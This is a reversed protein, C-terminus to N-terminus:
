AKRRRTASSSAISSRLLEPVREVQDQRARRERELLARKREVGWRYGGSGGTRPVARHCPVILALRNSACARAVARAATPRGLSAAIEGYTKTQGYPIAALAKWVRCTFATAVVDTEIGAIPDGGELHSVISAVMPRLKDDDRVVEAASFESRLSRELVADSDGLSVACAGRETCAALMRGLKTNVLTFWVRSGTGARQYESPTMGLLKAGHEYLRSSSGYGAGYLASTVSDGGRLTEKLRQIRRLDSYAKPTMGLTAKFARSLQSPSVGFRAAVSVLTPVSDEQSDIFRCVRQALESSANILSADPRCRLCARYGAQRAEDSTSYFAVRDRRPHRAACSPRCFIGTSSVAFVFSGDARRDRALVKQWPDPISLTNLNNMPRDHSM